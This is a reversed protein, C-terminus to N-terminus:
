TEFEGRITTIENEDDDALWVRIATRGRPRPKGEEYFCRAGRVPDGGGEYEQTGFLLNM